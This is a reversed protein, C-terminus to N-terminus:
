GALRVVVSFMVARSPDADTTAVLGGRQGTPVPGGPDTLVATVHGGGAGTSRARVVEGAPTSWATTTSSKDAWYSLLWSGSEVVDVVPTTHAPTTQGDLAVASVAVPEAGGGRYAALTLDAKTWTSSTVTVTSGASTTDAVTWWLRGALAGSATAAQTWGAPGSIVATGVNGAFLLVLADGAQVSGPVQITHRLRNGNASGAGVFTLAGAAPASTTVTRTTTSTAGADDTVTLRVTWSGASAYTHSLSAGRATTGDGLDWVHDTLSGDPDFSGSGDLSCELEVCSSTFSATPATGSAAPTLVVSFMAARGGAADALATLGGGTGTVAAAPDALVATVHGGGSGTSGSRVQQGSPVTWGTTASSKDAWYSVLWGGADPLTVAPTTHARASTTDFRLATPAVGGVSRYAAVTVDAKLRASATVRVTTGADTATATRTWLRGTIGSPSGAQLPTWGAPGTVTATDTNGTFFLLLADGRQVAAPVQVSHATRNGNASRAAVFSTPTSTSTSTPEVTRASSDLAGDDDRVSLTVTRTGGGSYTHVATAGTGTAGDGFDWSWSAVTGDPDSSSRGDFSCVLGDCTALFDATPSRNETVAALDVVTELRTLKFNQNGDAPATNADDQCIFVGQPFGAGLYGAQATIGDTRSCGDASPGDVIRFADVFAGTQRDYVTFYSRLPDAVNQASALLYGAGGGVDVLTVGEVDAALHGAPQVTDVATRAAGDAPAAGYRWLGVDEEAVYLAGHADDAVCGEAESGVAFERALDASLLGDGDPDRLLFQRLQGARTILVASLRGAAGDHHLCLGEGSGTPLPGGGEAIPALFRTAPDVGYLRLGGGNVVAVVDTTRDGVTVDQRVDVNGWFATDTTIRQHLSGDLEYVELAGLKDNAVVLSLSPDTPHVWVAPDDASDGAHTTPVTEAGAPVSRVTPVAAAAVRTAPLVGDALVLVPLVLVALLWRTRTGVAMVSMSDAARRGAM